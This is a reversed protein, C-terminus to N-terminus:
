LGVVAGLAQLEKKDREFKRRVSERTKDDVQSVIEERTVSLPPRPPQALARHRTKAKPIAPPRLGCSVTPRAAKIERFM